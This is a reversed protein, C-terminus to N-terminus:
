SAVERYGFGALRRRASGAEDASPLHGGQGDALHALALECVERPAATRFGHPVAEIGLHKVLKSLTM